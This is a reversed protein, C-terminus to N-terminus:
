HGEAQAPEEPPRHSNPVREDSAAGVGRTTSTTSSLASRTEFSELKKLIAGLRDSSVTAVLKEIRPDLDAGQAFVVATRSFGYAVYGIAFGSAVHAMTLVIALRRRITM